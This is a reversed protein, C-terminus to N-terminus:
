LLGKIKDKIPKANDYIDILSKYSLTGISKQNIQQIIKEVESNIDDKFLFDYDAKFKLIKKMAEEQLPVPAAYSLWISPSTNNPNIYELFNSFNQLAEKIYEKYKSKLGFKYGILSSIPSTILTTIFATISSIIISEKNLNIFKGVVEFFGFIQDM